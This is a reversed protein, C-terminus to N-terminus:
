WGDVTAFGPAGFIGPSEDVDQSWELHEPQDSPLAGDQHDALDLHLVVHAQLWVDWLATEEDDAGVPAAPDPADIGSLDATATARAEAAEDDAAGKLRITRDGTTLEADRIEVRPVYTARHAGEPRFAIARPRGHDDTGLVHEDDNSLASVEARLEVPMTDHTTRGGLDLTGDVGLSMGAPLTDGYPDIIPFFDQQDAPVTAATPADDSRFAAEHAGDSVMVVVPDDDSVAVLRVTTGAPKDEDASPPADSSLRDFVEDATVTTEPLDGLGQPKEDGVALSATLTGGEAGGLAGETGVPMLTALEAGDSEGEGSGGGGAVGESRTNVITVAMLHTGPAADYPEAAYGADQVEQFVVLVERGALGLIRRGSDGATDVTCLASDTLMCGGYTLRDDATQLRAPVEVSEGAALETGRPPGISVTLDPESGDAARLEGVSRPDVDHFSGDGGLTLAVEGSRQYFSTISAQQWITASHGARRTPGCVVDDQIAGGELHFYCAADAPVNARVAGETLSERWADGITRLDDAPRLLASHHYTWDSPEPVSCGTLVLLVAAAAAAARRRARM